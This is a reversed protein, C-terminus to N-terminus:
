IQSSDRFDKYDQANVLNCRNVFYFLASQLSSYENTGGKNSPKSYRYEMIDRTTIEHTHFSHHIDTGLPKGSDHPGQCRLLVISKKIDIYKVPNTWILGVSFDEIFEDSIRLFARYTYKKDLSELTFTNRYHRNDLWMESKESKLIQKKTVILENDIFDQTLM